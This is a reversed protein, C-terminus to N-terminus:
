KIRGITSSPVAVGADHVIPTQFDLRLELLISGAYKGGEDGDNFKNTPIGLRIAMLINEYSNITLM